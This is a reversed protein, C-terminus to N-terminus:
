EALEKVAECLDLVEAKLKDEYYELKRKVLYKEYMEKLLNTFEGKRESFMGAYNKEMEANFTVELRGLGTKIKKGDEEVTIERYDRLLISVDIKFKVYSTVKRFGSWESEIEKGSEKDKEVHKTEAFTYGMKLLFDHIRGHVEKYNFTGKKRIRLEEVVKLPNKKEKGM